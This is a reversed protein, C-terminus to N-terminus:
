ATGTLVAYVIVNDIYSARSPDFSGGCTILRLGAHDLDGYVREAPFDSKPVREVATVRFTATSGDRRAIDVTDGARLERLRFFVAPGTRSDVHGLVVAPGLEGPTPGNAYWGTEDARDLPPVEVTGDPNLGVRTV